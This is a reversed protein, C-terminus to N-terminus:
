TRRGTPALLLTDCALTATLIDAEPELRDRAFPAERRPSRV